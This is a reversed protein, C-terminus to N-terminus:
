RLSSVACRSAISWCERAKRADELLIDTLIALDGRDSQAGFSQAALWNATALEVMERVPVEQNVVFWNIPLPENILKSGACRQIQPSTNKSIPCAVVEVNLRAPTACYV